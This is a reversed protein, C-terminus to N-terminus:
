NLIWIFYNLVGAFSVWLIYPLLLYASAKSIKYFKIITFLIALWLFIIELFAFGPSKYYFFIISWFFNLALQLFFINRANITAKGKQWVLFLSIGMLLFLTTWAPAFVWSPPNFFPKNLVKYWSNIAPTTFISGAIGVLQCM